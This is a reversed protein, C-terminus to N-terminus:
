DCDRKSEEKKQNGDEEKEVTKRLLGLIQLAFQVWKIVHTIVTVTSSLLKLMICM